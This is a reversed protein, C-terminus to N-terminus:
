FKRILGFNFLGSLISYVPIFQFNIANNFHKSDGDTRCSGNWGLFEMSTFLMRDKNLDLTLMPRLKVGYITSTKDTLLEHTSTSRPIKQGAYVSVEGWLNLKNWFVKTIKYRFYPQVYWTLYDSLAVGGGVLANAIIYQVSSGSLGSFRCDAFVVTCGATIKPTFLYGFAPKLTYSFKTGVEEKSDTSFQYDDKSWFMGFQLSAYFQSTKKDQSSPLIDKTATAANMTQQLQNMSKQLEVMQAQMQALRQDSSLSDAPKTAPETQAWATAALLLLLGSFIIKKYTGM